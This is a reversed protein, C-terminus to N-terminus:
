QLDAVPPYAFASWRTAMSNTSLKTQRHFAIAAIVLVFASPSFSCATFAPSLVATNM